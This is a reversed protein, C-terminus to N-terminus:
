RSFISEIATTPELAPDTRSTVHVRPAKDPCFLLVDDSREGIIYCRQGALNARRFENEHMLRFPACLLALSIALVGLGAAATTRDIPPEGAHRERLRYWGAAIALVFISLVTRFALQADNDPALQLLVDPPATDLFSTFARVVDRFIWWIAGLGAVQGALLWQARNARTSFGLTQGLAQARHWMVDSARQVPPAVRQAARWLGRALRVALMAILGYAAPGILSRIGYVFWDIPTEQAFAGRDLSQDFAKSTIFGLLWVAAAAGAATGIWRWTHDAATRSGAAAPPTASEVGGARDHSGFGTPMADLLDRMMAGASEYRSELARQVVRAFADPLGPRVDPLLHHQGLAHALAVDAVSRGEVPYRGTVLFFLLVGVSYIDATTTWPGGGLVHPSLYVPTGVMLPTGPDRATLERGAGFDMLVLRGGSERMVNQAKVDRHLLGAGHVATLADCVRIGVLAAEEPGMPGEERVIQALPRGHVLEMWIGVEEGRRQAGYVTVVHPHRVRALMQGERIVAATTAPDSRDPRIVKLAVDRALAADWARYVRGFGGHGIEVIIRLDGWMAGAPLPSPFTREAATQTPDDAFADARDGAGSV